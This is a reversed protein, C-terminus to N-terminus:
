TLLVGVPALQDKTTLDLIRYQTAGTVPAASLPPSFHVTTGVISIVRANEGKLPGGMVTNLIVLYDGPVSTGFGASDTISLTTCIGDPISTTQVLQPSLESEPNTNLIFPQLSIGVSTDAGSIDYSEAYGDLEIFTTEDCGITLQGEQTGTVTTELFEAMCSYIAFRFENVVRYQAYNFRLPLSLSNLLDTLSNLIDGEVLELETAANSLDMTLKMLPTDAPLNPGYTTFHLDPPGIWEGGAKLIPARSDIVYYHNLTSQDNALRSIDNLVLTFRKFDNLISSYSLDFGKYTYEIMLPDCSTDPAPYLTSNQEIRGIMPRHWDNLLLGFTNLRMDVYMNPFYYYTITVTSGALPIAALVVVGEHPLVVSVTVPIGNVKVIIDSPDETIDGNSDTIPGHQTYFTRAPPYNNIVYNHGTIDEDVVHTLQRLDECCKRADDYAYDYMDWRDRDCIATPQVKQQFYFGSSDIPLDRLVGWAYVRDDIKLDAFTLPNHFEDRIITGSTTLIRVNSGVKLWPDSLETIFGDVSSEIVGDIPTPNNAPTKDVVIEAALLYGTSGLLTICHATSLYSDSWILRLEYLTHAPKIIRALFDLGQQMAAFDPIGGPPMIIEFFWMFQNAIDYISDEVYPWTLKFLEVVRVPTETFLRTGAEINSPTSGGFLITKLGLLFRHYQLDTYKPPAFKEDAGHLLYGLNQYLYTARTEDYVGDGYVDDSVIRAIGSEEAISNQFLTYNPGIISSRYNSALDKLFQLFVQHEEQWLRVRRQQGDDFFEGTLNIGVNDSM